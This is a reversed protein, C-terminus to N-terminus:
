PCSAFLPLQKGKYKDFFENFAYRAVFSIPANNSQALEELYEDRGRAPSITIRDAPAKKSKDQSEM